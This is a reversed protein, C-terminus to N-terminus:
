ILKLIDRATVFILLMILLVFGVTHFVQEVRESVPKGKIKEIGIFLIRGGDLAPFPFANIIALNISLLAAFQLIYALGLQTAQKTMVAIGVPGSVELAVKEGVLLNKIINWFAELIALTVFVTTKLGMWFAEHVPYSVIVTQIMSIGLAGQGEPPNERPVATIELEQKGRKIKLTIEGGLSDDIFSKVESISSFGIIADGSKLGANEAPSDADVSAVQIMAPKQPNETEEVAQPSGIMFAFSILVWALIFNMTVGAALVKVRTFAKKGAFSDSAKKDEGNEGKIKVFGGLPIWNLSYVTEKREVERNGFIIEWKTKGSKNKKPVLGIIRPPFGFGFEKAQIGNRRAVLFHGLEHAFILVGLILIFVIVALM